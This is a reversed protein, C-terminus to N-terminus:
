TLVLETANDANGFIGKAFTNFAISIRVDKGKTTDVRHELNSPFVILDGTRVPVIWTKANEYVFDNCEMNLINNLIPSTFVINDEGETAKTYLVGSLISNAHTHTHHFDGPKTFNFWSQTLYFDMKNVPRIIQDVYFNVGALCFAKLDAIRDDNLVDKKTSIMNGTNKEYKDVSSFYDKEERTFDRVLNSKIYCTPFIREISFINM